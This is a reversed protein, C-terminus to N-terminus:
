THTGSRVMPISGKGRGQLVTVEATNVTASLTTEPLSSRVTFTQSKFFMLDGMAVIRVSEAILLILTQTPWFIMARGCSLRCTLNNSMDPTRSARSGRLLRCPWLLITHQEAHLSSWGTHLRKVQPKSLCAMPQLMLIGASSCSFHSGDLAPEQWTRPCHQSAEKHPHPGLSYNDTTVNYGAQMFHGPLTRDEEKQIQITSSEPQCSVGKLPKRVRHQVDWAHSLPCSPM